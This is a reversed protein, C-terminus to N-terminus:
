RKEPAPVKEPVPTKPPNEPPLFGDQGPLLVPPKEISEPAPWAHPPEILGPMEPGALRIQWGGGLARYVSVVGQAIQARALAELNQETVLNQEILAVTNFDVTGVKYRALAINMAKQAAVVSEKMLRTQEQSQLFTVIGNEAESAAQLVQQQYALIDDRLTAEQLKVNGALRGYNLINWQFSPGVSSNFASSKFLDSFSGARYGLSGNISLHPYFEAMAMGIQEAQAAANREARRVDPRRRLLDCPIGVVVEPPATPIPKLGLRARLDTPPIGLLICLQNEATRLQIEFAPIQAETQSLTAQAQDVDLEGVRGAAFRAQTIELIGRQLAANAKQLEIQEQYQRANVYNLAIDGLVTVLTADYDEISFELLDRTSAIYRRFYGWFDIEWALNFGYNWQDFHVPVAGPIAANAASAYRTYSGTMNQTQPFFTGGAMCLNARAELVKFGWQKVTLNQRYAECELDDLVPDNFVSWWCAMNAAEQRVRPDNADIWHDAVPGPPPCYNPGVKFGNHVYDHFSTCCGSLSLIIAAGLTAALGSRPSSGM